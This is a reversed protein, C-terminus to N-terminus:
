NVRPRQLLLAIAERFDTGTIELLSIDAPRDSAGLYRRIVLWAARYCIYQLDAGAFGETERALCRLDVEASLRRKRTHIRLIQERAHQDPLPLTLVIDFRGPRLLAADLRDLRNTAGLVIIGRSAEIGDMETLLQGLVRESVDDSGSGRRNVLADIEDFFIICPAAQRATRFIQRVAKESEGVWKSFLEPGKISIFNAKSSSAAARALMTKGTGPPGVLLVGRPPTADLRQLLEPYYIPWEVAERMEQKVTELGGLEDWDIHPIEVFVERIASPEIESLALLFHEQRVQLDSILELSIGDSGPELGPLAQRLALMAAEKCLAQLDAGVFGHTDRAIEDLQV